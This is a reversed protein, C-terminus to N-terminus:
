QFEIDYIGLSGNEQAIDNLEVASFLRPEKQIVLAVFLEAQSSLRVLDFSLSPNEKKLAGLVALHEPMNPEEGTMFPSMVFIGGVQLKKAVHSLKMKLFDTNFMHKVEGKDGSQCSM